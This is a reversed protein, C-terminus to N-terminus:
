DGSAGMSALFEEGTQRPHEGAFDYAAPKEDIYIEGSLRFEAQDDFSGMWVMYQDSEILRYFLSTGCRSCFGREAWDSSPYRQLNEEGSFEIKEVSVALGPGGSWRRCMDCHCAHLDHSVGTAKFQVASCLCRGSHQTM